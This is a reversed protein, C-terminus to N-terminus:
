AQRNIEAILEPGYKETKVAGFGSIRRLAALTTPRRRCLEMLSADTCVAFAPIGARDALRKRVQKLRQLLAQDAPSLPQEQGSGASAHIQLKTRPKRLYLTRTGRLLPRAKQTVIMTGDEQQLLFSHALLLSQLQELEESSAKPLIGFTSLTDLHQDTVEKTRHGQLVAHLLASTPYLGRQRIRAVCSLLKRGEETVDATTWGGLCVSCNNCNEELNEGFYALLLRRLCHSSTCYDQMQHLRRLKRRYLTKRLTEEMQEQEEMGMRLIFRNLAVDRDHYLLLCEAPSGDRGARGAEQYYSELDRPMHYHLVFSVNSKNIGMGFANTAVMISVRDYLFDEQHRQRIEQPLGAHYAAAPYGNAILLNTVADVASRSQCYVIGSEGSHRQLFALTSANKDDTMEVGFFLNKRDFSTIVQCPAQLGLATIIDRRVQPTATATFASIVPRTPLTGILKCIDLYSPRFDHGWQSICHAEDVTIMSITVRGVLALCRETLLREPAIYLLKYAGAEARRLVENQQAATLSSNLYAAPIGCQHLAMVQDQMLSILPSIVLTLGELLLAPLQYCVSKGAGTPMIGLADQGSLLANVIQEQGERFASYGFYEQLAEPVTM